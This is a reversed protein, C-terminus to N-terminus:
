GAPIGLQQEWFDCHHFASFGSSPHIAGPELELMLDTGASSGHRRPRRYRPWPLLGPANPNGTTIFRSWYGIMTNSLQQQSATLPAINPNPFLYALESAHFAGQPTNPDNIFPPAHQDNFEYAFVPVRTSYLLDDAHAPCAFFSDTKQAAYALNPSPYASAPYTSLIADADGPNEQQIRTAYSAPTLPGGGILDVYIFTFYRYEDHTSGSLVPVRNVRHKAWAAAPSIPLVAPGTNLGWSATLEGSILKSAPLARLCSLATARDTCGVSTAFTEGAASAQALTPTSESGGAVCSGSEQIAREFLGRATPSAILYCTDFSGASQGGITVQRPNGGFAAINAKVWRLAAEQDMLGYDGSTHDPSDASLDPHALFGLPGLRYNVTVVVVGGKVTLASADYDSGAGYINSGGHFWVFVPRLHRPHAATWVNLYLCDESTSGTRNSDGPLIAKGGPLLTLPLQACPSAARTADRVGTWRAAAQPPRWRLSGVPPTAYPIGEFLRYSGNASGRVAGSRTTVIDGPARARARAASASAPTAAIAALLTLVLTRGSRVARM